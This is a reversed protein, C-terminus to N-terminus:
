GGFTFTKKWEGEGHASQLDSYRYNGQGVDPNPDLVAYRGGPLQEVILALHTSSSGNWRYFVQVPCGQSLEEILREELIQGDVPACPLGFTPYVRDPWAVNDCGSPAGPSPCCRLNFKKSALSCQTEAIGRPRMLMEGCAAWCWNDETQAVYAYGTRLERAAHRAVPIPIRDKRVLPM